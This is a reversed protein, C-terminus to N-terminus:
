RTMDFFFIFNQSQLKKKIKIFFSKPTFYIEMIHFNQFRNKSWFAGNKQTFDTIKFAAFLIIQLSVNVRYFM